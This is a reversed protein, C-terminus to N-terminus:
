HYFRSLSLSMGSFFIKGSFAVSLSASALSDSGLVNRDFPFSVSSKQVTTDSSVDGPDLKGNSSLSLHSFPRNLEAAEKDMTSSFPFDAGESGEPVSRDQQRSDENRPLQDKYTLDGTNAYSTELSHSLYNLQSNIRNSNELHKNETWDVYSKAFQEQKANREDYSANWAYRHYQDPEYLTPEENNRHVLTRATSEFNEKAVTRERVGETDYQMETM